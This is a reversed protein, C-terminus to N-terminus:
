IIVAVFVGSCLTAHVSTLIRTETVVGLVVVSNVHSRPSLLHLPIISQSSPLSSSPQIEPKQVVKETKRKKWTCAWGNDNLAFQYEAFYVFVKSLYIYFRCLGSANCNCICLKCPKFCSQIVVM